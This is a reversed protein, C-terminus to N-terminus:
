ESRLARINSSRLAFVLAAWVSAAALLLAAFPVTYRSLAGAATQMSVLAPTMAVTAAGAGVLIGGLLLLAHERLLLRFVMPAPYGFAHLLAIERRREFVNRLVVIGTAAAGLLVGLGGLALFMSLYTSEVAYFMRLRDVTTMVDMGDRSFDSQLKAVTEPAPPSASAVLFARFGQESPWLRTFAADSILVTGQFVSLAMPLTGVLKLSVTNGSDDLVDLTDGVKMKLGWMATNADGALIPVTNGTDSDLLRWINDGNAPLFAKMETMAETNVGFIRPTQAHNLNLCSADDGDRVRLAASTFEPFAKSIAASDILPTTTEAYLSFGGTGSWHMESNAAPDKQMSAVALVLFCGSALTSIMGLSRSRRRSANLLAIRWPTPLGARKSFAARILMDRAILLGALLVLFGSTFFSMSVDEAESFFTLATITVASLLSLTAVIRGIRGTRYTQRPQTFDGQLLERAPFRMIRRLCLFTVGLACFITAAAGSAISSGSAHFLIHINGVAGGWFKALGQLLAQAYAIGILAGLLAAPVSVLFGETLFQTRVRARGLGIALMLGIEGARQQVGLTYLLATLTLASILLFFSMGFFLGGLDIAEGVAKLAKTRVDEVVFGLDAPDVNRALESDISQQTAAPDQFRVATVKGFRNGWMEQGARLTVFAKPTQRYQKWYEENSKDKLLTDDMPMGIKWDACSEVNSLGPFDPVLEKELNLSEIPVISHVTFQRSREVFQNSPTVEYYAVSISDGERADLASALWSNLVIQDDRLGDACAGATMFSYPTFRDGKAIRNVLYTLTAQAQPIASAANYVPEDIFIRDSELQLAANGARRIRLGSYEPKWSERIAAQLASADTNGGFLVLNVRDQLEMQSQLDGLRLFVNFPPLQTATLGFRGMQADSLVASVRVNIRRAAEEERSSLPADRSLLSPVPIRLALTDGPKVGLRAALREDVAAEREGLVPPGASGFSWFTDEVGTIQAQNVQTQKGTAADQRIVMGRLLLAGSLPTDVKADVDRILGQSFTRDGAVVVLHIGGLRSLAYTRLTYDASDGVILAGTLISAALLTGFFLGAHLRKFYRLSRAIPTFRNM